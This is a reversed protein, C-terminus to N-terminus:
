ALNFLEATVQSITATTSTGTNISCGIKLNAVTSDFGSSTAKVLSSNVTTWGTAALKHDLIGNAQIVASTGSGVTRFTVDIDIVGEDAVATQVAFTLTARSTDSTTGATGLRINCVVSATGAVSTKDIWIRLRYRSKAQLRGSPIAVDSGTVYTDTGGTPSQNAVSANNQRGRQEFYTTLQNLNVKKSAGGQNVALEDTDAPTTVGTLGSIKTDAM